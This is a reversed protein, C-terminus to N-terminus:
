GVRFKQLSLWLHRGFLELLSVNGIRVLVLLSETVPRGTSLVFHWTHSLNKSVGITHQYETQLCELRRYTSRHFAM